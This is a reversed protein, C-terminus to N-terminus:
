VVKWSDILDSFKDYVRIVDDVSDATPNHAIAKLEEELKRVNGSLTNKKHDAVAADINKKTILNANGYITRFIPVHVTPDSLYHTLSHVNPHTIRRPEISTYRRNLGWEADPQFPLVLTFADYKHHISLYKGTVGGDGPKVKSKYAEIFSKFFAPFM